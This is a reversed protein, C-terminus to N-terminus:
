FKYSFGAKIEYLSADGIRVEAPTGEEVTNPFNVQELIGWDDNLFNTLNDIVLYFQGTHGDSFGPVEQTIRLDVKTWWSGQESNRTDGPRLM